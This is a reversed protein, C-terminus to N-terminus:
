GVTAADAAGAYVRAAPWRRDDPRISQRAEEMLTDDPVVRNALGLSLSESANLLDGRYMLDFARGIGIIRPLWYSAGYDSALGRKIFISGM